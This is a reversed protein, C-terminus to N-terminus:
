EPEKNHKHLNEKRYETMGGDLIFHADCEDNSPNHGVLEGTIWKEDKGQALKKRGEAFKFLETKKLDIPEEM